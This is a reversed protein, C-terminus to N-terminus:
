KDDKPIVTKLKRIQDAAIPSYQAAVQACREITENHAKQHERVVRELSMRSGLDVKDFRPM